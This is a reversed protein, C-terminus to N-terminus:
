IAKTNSWAKNERYQAYLREVEAEAAKSKKKFIEQAEVYEQTIEKIKQYANFLPDSAEARLQADCKKCYHGDGSGGVFVGHSYKIIEDGCSSCFEAGCVMCSRGFNFEDGCRDCFEVEKSITKRV